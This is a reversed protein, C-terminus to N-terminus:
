MTQFLKCLFGPGQPLHQPPRPWYAIIPLLLCRQRLCASGLFSQSQVIAALNHNLTFPLSFLCLLEQWYLLEYQLSRPPASRALM